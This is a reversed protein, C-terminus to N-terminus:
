QAKGNIVIDDFDYTNTYAVGTADVLTEVATQGAGAGGFIMLQNYNGSGEGWRTSDELYLNEALVNGDMSISVAWGDGDEVMVVKFTHWAGITANGINAAANKTGSGNTYANRAANITDSNTLIDGNKDITFLTSRNQGSLNSGSGRVYVNIGFAGENAQRFKFSIEICNDGAKQINSAYFQLGVNYAENVTGKLYIREPNTENSNLYVRFFRNGGETVLEHFNKENKMFELIEPNENHFTLVSNYTKQITGDARFGNGGSSYTQGNAISIPSSDEEAYHIKQTTSEFDVVHDYAEVWNAVVTVAGTTGAAIETAAAGNITWGAFSFGAKTPVLAALNLGEITYKTPANALAGGDLNITLDYEVATWKATLTMDSTVITEWDWDEGEYTWGAFTYGVKTPETPATAATAEAVTIAPVEAGEFTITFTNGAPAETTTTPTAGGGCSVLAFAMVAALLMLGFLKLKM